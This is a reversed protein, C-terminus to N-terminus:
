TLLGDHSGGVPPGSHGFHSFDYGERKKKRGTDCVPCPSKFLSHNEREQLIGSFIKNELSLKDFAIENWM